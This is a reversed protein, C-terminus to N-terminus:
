RSALGHRSPRMLVSGVLHLVSSETVWAFTVSKAVLELLLVQSNVRAPTTLLKWRGLFHMSMRGLTLQENTLLSYSEPAVKANLGVAKVAVDIYDEPLAPLSRAPVFELTDMQGVDKISLECRSAEALKILSSRSGMKQRFWDNVTEDVLFRSVYLVKKIQMYEFDPQDESATDLVALINSVTSEVSVNPRDIDVVFFKTSPQEAMVTRSLGRVTAMNPNEGVSLNGGTIWIINTASDTIKQIARLSKPNTDSVLAKELEVTVIATSQAPFAETELGNITLVTVTQRTIGEVRQRLAENLPHTADDVVIIYTQDQEPYRDLLNHLGSSSQSRCALTLRHGNAEQELSLIQFGAGRLSNGNIERLFLLQGYPELYNSLPNKQTDLFIDVASQDTLLILDFTETARPKFSNQDDLDPLALPQIDCLEMEECFRGRSYSLFRQHNTNRDLCDMVTQTLDKQYQGIELIHSCSSTHSIMRVLKGIPSHKRTQPGQLLKESIHSSLLAENEPLVKTLDPEWVIQLAPERVPEHSYAGHIKVAKIGAFKLYAKGSADLLESRALSTSFGVIKCSTYINYDSLAEHQIGPSIQIQDIATPFSAVLNGLIGSTWSVVCTQLLADIVVPHIEYMYRRHYSDLEVPLAALKAATKNETRLRSHSFESISRFNSGFNFGVKDFQAYWAEASQSETKVTREPSRLSTLSANATLGVLGTAHEVRGKGDVTTSITFKWWNKAQNSDSIRYPSLETFIESKSGVTLTLTRQLSVQKLELTYQQFDVSALQQCARCAMAIYGAAPFVVSGQIKHDELWPVDNTSLLNRWTFTTTSSGVTAHGLLEDHPYKRNRYEVSSRPENWLLNSHDWKYKPLNVLVKPEIINTGNVKGFAVPYGSTWLKGVFDLVCEESCKNRYLVSMYLTEKDPSAKSVNQQIPLQLAGHPGIEVIRLTDKTLVENIASSFEVPSELNSRWYAPSSTDEHSVPSKRVSSIMNVHSRMALRAPTSFDSRDLQKAAALLSEYESGVAKMHHSHYAVGNTRLTRVMKDQQKMLESLVKIAIENGSLTVSNLSNICAVNVQASLGLATITDKAETASTGVAIMFGNKPLSSV